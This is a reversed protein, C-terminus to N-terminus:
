HHLSEWDEGLKERSRGNPTEDNLRAEGAEGQLWVPGLSIRAALRDLRNHQNLSPIRSRTIRTNEEGQFNMRSKQKGSIHLWFTKELYVGKSRTPCQHYLVWRGICSIYSVLTQDRPWSSGKSSSITVWELIRSQVTGHVSPGPPSCDIPNCFTPCPKTVLCWCAPELEAMLVSFLM